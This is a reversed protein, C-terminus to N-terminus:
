TLGDPRGYPTPAQQASGERHRATPRAGSFVPAARKKTQWARRHWPHEREGHAFSGTRGSGTRRRPRPGFVLQVRGRPLRHAHQGDDRRGREERPRGAASRAVVVLWSLAQGGLLDGELRAGPVLLADREL